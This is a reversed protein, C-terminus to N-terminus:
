EITLAETYVEKIISKLKDKNLDIEVNDIYKDLITATDDAQDVEYLEDITAESFDEVVTVDIPNSRTLNDMMTDFLFVNTKKSVIVKVYKNQYEMYDIQNIDHLMQEEDNYFIKRFITHPNQIFETERTKTDFVHFGRPDDYDAWTMEGPSGVYFINGRHSRHHFHGTFVTEYRKLTDSDMGELCFNGADMEFGQLEFHGFCFESNSERIFKLIEDYNDECLWPIFDFKVGDFEMTKPQAHIHMDIDHLLLVPSNVDLKNKYFIDHNGLLTHFEIMPHRKFYDFFNERAHALSQFNIYKRRDFLDGLQVVCKIDHEKLYPFFTENYFRAYLNAFVQNDNRMGHHTDGLIAIKM